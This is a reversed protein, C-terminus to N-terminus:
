YGRLMDAGPYCKINLQEFEGFRKKCDSVRGGCKDKSPDITPNGESDYMLSGTYGCYTGRYGGVVLWRCMTANIESNPLQMGEFNLASQLEFEVVSKDESTRAEIIWIEPPMEQTPDASPQGDLYHAFTRRRILKVGVLDEYELCLASIVGNVNGVRLTPAPQAGTGTRSFGEAEIPWPLYERGQWVIAGDEMHSHFLLDEGGIASLQVEYLKVEDGPQLKQVDSTIM